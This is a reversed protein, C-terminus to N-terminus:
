DEWTHSQFPNGIIDRLLNAQTVRHKTSVSFWRPLGSNVTLDQVDGACKWAVEAEFEGLPRMIEGAAHHAFILEETFLPDDAYREAVEVAKRSREDTLLPWVARCCACAFLRLKRDSALQRYGAAPTANDCLSCCQHGSAMSMTGDGNNCWICGCCRSMCGTALRLMATPDNSAVWESETM